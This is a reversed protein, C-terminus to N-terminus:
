FEVENSSNLTNSSYTLVTQM